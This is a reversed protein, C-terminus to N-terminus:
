DWTRSDVIPKRDAPITGSNVFEITDAKVRCVDQFKNNLSDALNSKDINPDKLEIKFTMSDRQDKRSVLIQFAAIPEFSGFIQEAQRTVVFMGRIKTADGARGVIAMLRDATRGCSCPENTYYSLDGTGFRILGWTKNLIPTVVIEGITNPGLQKGTEPDVIEIVYEDMFHMGSKQDCEYAIAGGLETVAYAQATSIKYENELTKRVSPALM